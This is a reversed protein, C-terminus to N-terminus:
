GCSHDDNAYGQDICNKARAYEMEQLVLERAESQQSITKGSWYELTRADSFIELFADCDKETITRLRLNATELEPTSESSAQLM